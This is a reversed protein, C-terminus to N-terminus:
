LYLKSVSIAPNSTESALYLNFTYEATASCVLATLVLLCILKNM